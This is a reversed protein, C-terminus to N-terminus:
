REVESDEEKEFSFAPMWPIKGKEIKDMVKDAVAEYMRLYYELRILADGFLSIREESIFSLEEFSKTRDFIVANEGLYFRLAPSSDKNSVFILNGENDVALNEPLCICVGRELNDKDSDLDLLTKLSFEEILAANFSGDSYSSRVREELGRRMLDSMGASKSAAYAMKVVDAIQPLMDKLRNEINQRLKLSADEMLKCCNEM